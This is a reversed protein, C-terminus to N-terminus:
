ANVVLAGNKLGTDIAERAFGYPRASQSVKGSKTLRKAWVSNSLIDTIIYKGAKAKNLDRTLTVTTGNSLVVAEGNKDQLKLTKKTGGTGGGTGGGKGSHTKQNHKGPLHKEVEWPYQIELNM